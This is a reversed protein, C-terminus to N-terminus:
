KSKNEKVYDHIERIVEGFERWNSPKEGNEKHVKMIQETSWLGALLYLVGGWHYFDISVVQMTVNFVFVFVYMAVMRRLIFALQKGSM